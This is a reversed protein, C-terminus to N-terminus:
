LKYATSHQSLYPNQMANLLQIFEVDSSTWHFSLDRLKKVNHNLTGSLNMWNNWVKTHYFRVCVFFEFASPHHNIKASWLFELLDSEFLPNWHSSFQKLLKEIQYPMLWICEVVFLNKKWIDQYQVLFIRWDNSNSFLSMIQFAWFIVNDLPPRVNFSKCSMNQMVWLRNEYKWQTWSEYVNNM